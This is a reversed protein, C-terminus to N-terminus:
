GRRHKEFFQRLDPMPFNLRFGWRHVVDPTREDTFRRTYESLVPDRTLYVPAGARPAFERAWQRFREAGTLEATLELVMGLESAVGLAKARQRLAERDLTEAARDLVVPLSCIVTPDERLLVLSKAVAEELPMEKKAPVLIPAGYAVLTPRPDGPHARLWEEAAEQLAAATGLRRHSGSDRVATITAAFPM